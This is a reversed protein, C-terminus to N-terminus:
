DVELERVLLCFFILFIQDFDLVKLWFHDFTKEDEDVRSDNDIRVVDWIKEQHSVNILHIIQLLNAGIFDFFRSEL